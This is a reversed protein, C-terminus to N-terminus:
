FSLYCKYAEKDGEIERGETSQSKAGNFDIKISHSLELNDVLGSLMRQNVKFELCVTRGAGQRGRERKRQRVCLMTIPAAPAPAFHRNSPNTDNAAPRAGTTTTATASATAFSLRQVATM